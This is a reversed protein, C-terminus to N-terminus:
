AYGGLIGILRMKALVNAGVTGDRIRANVFDFDFDVGPTLTLV